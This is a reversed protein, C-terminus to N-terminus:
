VNEIVEVYDCGMAYQDEVIQGAFKDAVKEEYCIVGDIYGQIIVM